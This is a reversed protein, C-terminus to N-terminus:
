TQHNWTSPKSLQNPFNAAAEQPQNKQLHRNGEKVADFMIALAKPTNFDDNMAKLYGNVIEKNLPAKTQSSEAAKIFTYLRELAARSDDLMKTSFDIPSRYHASLLAYRLTEAQYKQLLSRITVINGLSKSMKEKDLNVFGNHLWYNVFTKGHCAESQARENEHHPFILDRGGGHIDFTIGLHQSSMVSCEIHWGPRGPGWPSPWSPEGPKSRKWLAFDLPNRKAQNIEVRAGAQLEEPDRGSLALYDKYSNVEFYVDGAAAYAHKKEILKGIMKIMGDIYESARPEINPQANGLAAMDEHYTKTFFESVQRFDKKEENARRIIKDDIDTINRVYTVQYLLRQLHKFVIDFFVYARAHGIHSYDYVTPGCVYLGVNGAKLPQFTEKRRSQTNYLKLGSDPLRNSM